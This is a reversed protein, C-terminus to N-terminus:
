LLQTLILLLQSLRRRKRFTAILKSTDIRDTTRNATTEVVTEEATVEEAVVATTVVAVVAKMAEVITVVAGTVEEPAM